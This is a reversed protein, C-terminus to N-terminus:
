ILIGKELSSIVMMETEDADVIDDWDSALIDV